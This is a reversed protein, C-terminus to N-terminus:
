MARRREAPSNLQSDDIMRSLPNHPASGLLAHSGIEEHTVASETGGAPVDNIEDLASHLTLWAVNIPDVFTRSKPAIADRLQPFHGPSFVGRRDATGDSMSQASASLIEGTPGTIVPEITRWVNAGATVDASNAGTVQMPGQFLDELGFRPSTSRLTTETVGFLGRLDPVQGPVLQPLPQIGRSANDTSPQSSSVLTESPPETSIVSQASASLIEGTPGTIVPEITRWVNAGANVDATNGGTVPMPGQFPNELGFRPTISRPTTEAVGFLGHLDPLQGPILQFGSSLNDKNSQSSSVLMTSPAEKLMVAQATASLVGANPGTIVPEITRWANEGALVDSTNIDTVPIPSQFPNELGFRPTISRPIVMTGGSSETSSVPRITAGPRASLLHLGGGGSISSFADITQAATGFSTNTLTSQAASLNVGTLNGNLGFYYALDGGYATTASSALQASPMDNSLAWNTPSGAATFAAVLATFNFDELAKNRLGDTGGSNFNASAIEVVQLTTYDQDATGVFWNTFTISDGSVGDSLILNNGSKNFVLSETDIGAGLSLVNTAGTTPALTTAGDGKNVSVVNSTAGTTITDSVKGAAYFDKFTGGTLTSAGGGGILAAQNSSAKIQDSGATSGGELVAIGTGGTLTDNGTNGVVLNLLGNGTGALASTGTLTLYQVNTPLTYSVSSQISNTTSTSTDSVIDATNNVVFTDNGTGGVLSDTGTTGAVLTDTGSGAVLTDKGTNATLVDNGSNATGKLAATGTFKLSHVNTPLTFSVTSSIANSATTSTDTVVDGANNIVFTDNGAGGMLTAVGSGATLTDAGSNATISDAHSNATGKLAATGTFIMSNVNTPLTYSVTSSITNSATTSTDIVKDATNNVFFTDNGSGGVLSDTGSTGAVLTDAGSGAVLTDSGTNATLVDNGSNATGRLAATGTFILSNVNTPLVYSVTSLIANSATTSADTVTDTANNVVFMDNGSGGVLSDTGTTGAVLTDNGSGAVLTDSATNATISDNGSNATGQIASSGTLVLANVNAALQYSVGSRATNTAATSADQIVDTSNNIVFTDNGTGGVLTDVGSNATLTDTGSNATGTLASTGTLTLSNINAALSFSVSSQIANTTTTSTDQIVDATNSVVFTDNGTGGILTDVGSNSTLTDTGSNATGTLNATGMLVLANVNTPLSYNFGALITNNATTAADQVIDAANNLIFIDNGTGGILTDIGTNSTLTNVLGDTGANATGTLAATGTLILNDVNAPLTFSFASQVTDAIPPHNDQIVDSANNVIFLENGGNGILTDVGSNSVLTDNGGSGTGQLPATGTLILTNVGSPLVFSASSSLTDSGPKSQLQVVDSASNAVFDVAVGTGGILTDVAAGAILTDNFGLGALTDSASGGVLSDNAGLAILQQNGSGATLTDNAGGAYIIGNGTGGNVVTSANAELIASGSAGTVSSTTLNVQSLFQALTLTNGGSFDFQYTESALAGNLTVTGTGNSIALAPNGNVDLVASATLNAASLGAGFQVTVPSGVTNYSVQSNGFGPNFVLTENVTPTLLDNGTGAVLTDNFELSTLTDNGSGAILVSFGNSTLSDNGSGAILTDLSGFAHMTDNDSNGTGVDSTGNLLLTDVNAPLAYSASSTITDFSSGQPAIVVDTSKSINFSNGGGVNGIFTDIGTGDFFTAGANGVITNNGSGQDNFTLRSGFNQASVSVSASGTLDWNMATGFPVQLAAPLTYSVSTFITDDQTFSGIVDASNNIFFSDNRQDQSFLTDVGTGSVIQSFGGDSILLDNGSGGMLVDSNANGVVTDNGSGAVVEDSTSNAILLDAQANGTGAIGSQNLELNNVSAPLTYNATAVIQDAANGSTVQVVDSANNVEFTDIGAGGVLTDVGSGAILTDAGGNATITDNGANGTAVLSSTGTLTLQSVNTPVTYSVASFVMDNGVGASVQIVTSAANVLFTENGSGGILTTNAGIADLTDSGSSGAAQDGTGGAYIVTGGVGATLTDSNGWAVITDQGTGGTVSDSSNPSLILNGNSGVVTTQGSPAVLQPVTVTGGGTFSVGSIAGPVLGGQVTVAGGAGTIVLSPAAGNTGPAASFTLSSQSIGPGFQILDGNQANLIQDQGFGSNLEFTDTGTGAVLTDNGVGAVLTDNGSNGTLSDNGSNATGTLNSTGALTLNDISTPLVFNVSAIVANTAAPATDQIVDSANNVVFTDSGAGGVLTTPMSTSDVLTDNGSGAVLTDFNGAATLLDNASNGSGTANSGTITLTNAASTLAYSFAAQVSNLSAAGSGFQIGDTANSLIYTESGTGGVLVDSSGSAELTDQGAGGTLTDANAGAILTGGQSNSLGSLGGVTSDLTLVAVNTPLTYNAFADISDATAGAAVQIVDSSQQVVFQVHSNGTSLTDGAGALTAGVTGGLTVSDNNGGAWVASSAAITDNDGYAFIQSTSFPETIADSNGFAWIFEDTGGTDNVSQGNGVSLVSLGARGSYEISTTSPGFSNLFQALTEPSGGAFSVNSIAGPSLGGNVVISDSGDNITLAINSPAFDNGDVGQGVSLATPTIGSEFFISANSTTGNFVTGNGITDQGFGPGFTYVTSAVGALSDYLFNTGTGALLTDSGMGSLTEAGAGAVLLSTGSLQDSLLDGAGGYISDSGTGATLTALGTGGFILDSGPGGILLDAGSGGYITSETAVSTGSANGLVVTPQSTTGGNGAYIVNFGPGADITDIGAGGYIANNFAVGILLDNGSNATLVNAGDANGTATLNASGMLTLADVNVPLSFSVSSLITNSTTTVSDQVVDSSRDVVFTDSGAGGILTASGTGAVLTDTGTGAMLTDSNGNGTASINGNGILVVSNINAPLTYNVSSEITDGATANQIVDASNNIIFLDNGSGGVLTDVGSNSVLIDNASNATGTLNGTGTLVLANVNATLRNSISSQLTDNATTATNVVADSSSNVIFLDNGTGGILTAAGSGATLTDNGSNGTIINAAANGTASLSNTGTLTLANVNTPLTYNVSSQILNTTNSVTDQVVDLANSVIFTDNGAGGVLTDVGSNSVLTDTGANATGQLAATGTLVLTNVNAVLTYNVSSLATNAATTSTDQVVDASNNIVFIENGSGGVLTDVAANSALTDNGGNATGILAATGTLLLSNVNAVLTANVSSQISNNTTTSSDQVVDNASNIVFTTNGLGGILTAAGAGAILTDNGAGGTLTDAAANGTGTINAVGTLTLENVNTPLVFDTSSFVANGSSTSASQIVDASNNIVFVDTGAGGVLTDVGSGSVLTDNGSGAVLSDAGSNGVLSDNASNGVATLNASGTLTLTNVNVPLTYSVSSLLLNNFGNVTDQVVDGVNNVVFTDAGTSGLLTALGTGAVLTDVGIGANLTDQGANGVILDGSHLEGFANGTGSLNASGTLVLTNVASSLTYSVSSEITDAGFKHGDFNAIVQDNTDNVVFVDSGDGSHFTVAGAGAILTDNGSNATIQDNQANGMAMLNASGTLTLVQVNTPLTFSVSSVVLNGQTSLSQLVDAASDIVFTDSGSGGILTDVGGGAVLTDAGSGAILIDNGANGTISNSGSVAAGTLNSSGTLTLTDVATPLTYSVSSQITDAGRTTGVSVVDGTNNVVFLDSGTGGVLSEIQAGSVSILTDNGSGAVLTDAGANAILMDNGANGTAILAATGALTLTNVNNPLVYSVSSLAANSATASTDQIVDSSNNIVFTDSGTGGVLTDVGTNSTLTDNASNAGGTLNGTGSLVLTNVNALLTTSVSSQLTNAATASVNQIVDGVNNVVFTDGDTGGILTAVGAGAILTDNGSNGTILNALSNGTAAIDATGILTLDAVNASATYSVSSRITDVATTSAVMVADAANNVVFVDNGIGGVLSDIAPGPGSVLTDNGSGAVLTDDGLNATLSDNGSNGTAVLAASGLLTLTNINAPLTFNVSSQYVITATGATDVVVDSANNLIFVDNGSGGILTDVGSNSILTDNGNNATGTLANTGSLVLTNVNTPLAVSFSSQLTNNTTTLGDQVVDNANNVIFTTNGTGGILTDIGTGATLTDSGAGGILVGTGANGTATINASGILTLASVNAPATYSVSAAVSTSGAGDGVQIVTSADNVTIRSSESGNGSEITDNAGSAAISTQAGNLGVIAVSNGGTLTIADGGITGSNVTDNNGTAIIGDEGGSNILTSAGTSYIADGLSGNLTTNNGWSSLTDNSATLNVSENSALNVAFTGFSGAFTQDGGFVDTLLTPLPISSSSADAASGLAGILADEISISGGDGTLTLFSNGSSDFSVSGTFDTAFLGNGLVLNEIGGGTVITDNGFGANFEFTVSGSNVQMFDNGSGAVLTDNGSGLLTDNSTGSVILDQGSNLDQLFGAGAGGYLTAVGSGGLVSTPSSVTGGDGAYLVDTGSGGQILDTGLGGYITTDGSFAFAATPAASTGGDGAYIVTNGAGGTLSDVGLGGYITTQSTPDSQSAFVHTPASATGGNGAYLVNTGSVGVVSDSGNGGYIVTTSSSGSGGQLTDTGSGGAVITTDGSGGVLLDNGSGGVISENGAGGYITANGTGGILTDSGASGFILDNGSGGTVYNQDLNANAFDPTGNPGASSVITANGSGGIITNDGDGGILTSVGSGGAIYSTGGGAHIMDTGSGAIITDNGMGGFVTSNGSGVEVYNNGNALELLDNGKGGFITANDAGVPLGSFINGNYPQPDPNNYDVPGTAVNNLVLLSNSLSTSWNGTAQLVSDGGLFTDNGAGLVVVDGGGSGDQFSDDAIILDNGNSGVITNNGDGVAILDGQQGTATATAATAIANALSTQTGAYIANTGDGGIIVDTGNNASIISNSSTANSSYITDQGTGGYVTNFGGGLSVFDQSGSLSTVDNGSGGYITNSGSGGFISDSGSNGADIFNPGAGASIFDDGGDGLYDTNGTLTDFQGTIVSTPNPATSTDPATPVYNFTLPTTQISGSSVTDPSPLSASLQLTAGSAIDSSGNDSTADTLGFSVNTQGAALTVNFTGNANLQEVTNGVTAEFDSSNAGSLAVTLTQASTSPADVSITYSQNTGEVFSPASTGVGNNAHASVSIEEPLVIGLYGSPEHATGINFNHTM